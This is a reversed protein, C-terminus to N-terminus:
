WFFDPTTITYDWERVVSFVAYRSPTPLQLELRLKGEEDTRQCQKNTSLFPMQSKTLQAVSHGM